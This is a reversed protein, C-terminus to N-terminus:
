SVHNHQIHASTGQPGLPGLPGRVGSDGKAGKTGTLGDRGDRGNTGDRGNAGDKGDRGNIGDKGQQLVLFPPGGYPSPDTTTQTTPAATSEANRRTRTIASATPLFNSGLQCKMHVM